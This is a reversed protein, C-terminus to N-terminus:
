RRLWHYWVHSIQALLSSPNRSIFSRQNGMPAVRTSRRWYIRMRSIGYRHLWVWLGKHFSMAVFLSILWRILIILFLNRPAADSWWHWTSAIKFTRPFGVRSALVHSQCCFRSVGASVFFLHHHIPFASHIHLPRVYGSWRRFFSLDALVCCIRCVSCTDVSVTWRLIPM